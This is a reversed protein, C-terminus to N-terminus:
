MKYKDKISHLVRPSCVSQYKPLCLFLSFTLLFSFPLHYTIPYTHCYKEAQWYSLILHKPFDCTNEEISWWCHPPYEAPSLSVMHDCPLITLADETSSNPQCLTLMWAMLRSSVKTHNSLSPYESILHIYHIIHTDQLTWLPDNRGFPHEAWIWFWNWGSYHQVSKTKVQM